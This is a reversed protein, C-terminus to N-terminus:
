CKVLAELKNMDRALRTGFRSVAQGVAAYDMGGALAGLQALSLRGRGRGLWLAADRGWDRPRNSFEVWAEGKVQEVASVIREWSVPKTLAKLQGQERPNGRVQRRIKQAFAETGLVLGAVLRDWPREMAGQRVAQETYERLAARREPETRGGCLRALPERCVWGLAECYGAYGRYSSWRYERLLRLRDAVVEAGPRSVLGARSAARQRKDLGMGAIRVPNLHVYRAVEQWGADDEVVLAKFRGQFLHGSRDHRRNFWVSYSVELWQMARSLNAEPTEVLLHFHNDMLVYAHIRVGFREELASLLELFRYRDPEDRFISKRENGRATVHYRGGPREIRLARAM